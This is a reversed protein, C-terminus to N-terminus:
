YGVEKKFKEPLTLKEKLYDHVICKIQKDQNIMRSVSPEFMFELMLARGTDSDHFWVNGDNDLYLVWKQLNSFSQFLSLQYIAQNRNNAIGFTFSGDEFEKIQLMKNNFYYKGPQIIFSDPKIFYTGNENKRCSILCLFLILFFRM